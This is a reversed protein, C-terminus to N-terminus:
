DEIKFGGCTCTNFKKNLQNHQVKQKISEVIQTQNICLFVFVGPTVYKRKTNRTETIIFNNHKNSRVVVLIGLLVDYRNGKTDCQNRYDCSIPTKKIVVSFWWSVLSSMM